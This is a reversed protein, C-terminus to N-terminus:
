WNRVIQLLVTAPTGIHKSVRSRMDPFIRSERASYRPTFKRVHCSQLTKCGFMERRISLRAAEVLTAIATHDSKASVGLFSTRIPMPQGNVNGYKASCAVEGNGKLSHGVMDRGVMFVRM